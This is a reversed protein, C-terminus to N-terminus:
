KKKKGKLRATTEKDAEKISVIERGGDSYKNYTGEFVKGEKNYMYVKEDSRANKYASDLQLGKAALKKDLEDANKADTVSNDNATPYWSKKKGPDNKFTAEKKKGGGKEPKGTTGYEPRNPREEKRKIDEDAMTAKKTKVHLEKTAGKGKETKGKSASSKGEDVGDAGEIKALKERTAKYTDRMRSELHNRDRDDLTKDKNLVDRTYDNIDDQLRDIDKETEATELKHEWEKIKDYHAKSGTKPTAKKNDFKGSKKMATDLDEGDGIFVRRGHVTVWRGEDAM